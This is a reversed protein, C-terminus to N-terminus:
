LVEEMRKTIEDIATEGYVRLFECWTANCGSIRDGASCVICEYDCSRYDRIVSDLQHPLHSMTVKTRKTKTKEKIQGVKTDEFRM